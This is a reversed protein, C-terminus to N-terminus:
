PRCIDLIKHLNTVKFVEYINPALNFLTLRGGKAMVRKRLAIIAGLDESMIDETESFNLLLHCREQAEIKALERTRSPQDSPLTVICTTSSRETKMEQRSSTIM